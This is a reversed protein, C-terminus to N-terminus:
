YARFVTNGEYQIFFSEGPQCVTEFYGDVEGPLWATGASDSSTLVNKVPTPSTLTVCVGYPFGPGSPHIAVRVGAVGSSSGPYLEAQPGEQGDNWVKVRGYALAQDGGSSPGSQNWNLATENHKCAATDDIARLNGQNDYCGHIVGNNGPIAASVVGVSVGGIVVAVVYGLFQKSIGSIRPISRRMVVEM